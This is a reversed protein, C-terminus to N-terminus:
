GQSEKGNKIPLLAFPRVAIRQNKDLIATDMGTSDKGPNLRWASSATYSDSTWQSSNVSTGSIASMYSEITSLNNEVETWEGVSGLYGNANNDFSYNSCYGAAYTTGTTKKLMLKTNVRGAYDKKAIPTSTIDYLMNVSGSTLGWAMSTPGEKAILFQANTTVVAVGIAESAAKGSNIWETNSYYKNEKDCIYIGNDIHNYEITCFPRALAYSTKSVTGISTNAGLYCEWANTSAGGQTSTWHTEEGNDYFRTGDVDSLRDNLETFDVGSAMLQGAAPLYWSGAPFGDTSYEVCAKAASNNTSKAVIEETNTKGKFDLRAESKDNTTVLATAMANGWVTKSTSVDQLAMFDFDMSRVDTIIGVCTKTSDKATSWSGDSYVYDYVKPRYITKHPYIKTSGLYMATVPTSGIYAKTIDLNTM